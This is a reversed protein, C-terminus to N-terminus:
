SHAGPSKSLAEQLVELEQMAFQRYDYKRVFERGDKGRKKLRLPNNLLAITEGAAAQHDGRIVSELQTPFVQSFVPLEYAVVPMGFALFETISLGWGEEYSLSLGIRSQSLFHDKEKESIGGTIIVSDLLGMEAFKKQMGERHPGEGIVVMRADPKARLVAQWYEPLEFVGKQEHMRGMFAVDFEKEQPHHSIIAEVDIGCGIQKTDTPDLDLSRELDRYDDQVTQSLCMVAGAEDHMAKAALRETKLFLNNILGGRKPQSALVHQVKAVWPCRNRLAMVQACYIEVIFQGSAYVVDYTRQLPLTHATCCRWAYAPFYTWTKSLHRNASFLDDSSVLGAEPSLKEFQPFGARAVLFDVHHGQAIWENAMYAYHKLVGSISTSDM